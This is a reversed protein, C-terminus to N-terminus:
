GGSAAVDEAFTIVPIGTQKALSRIRQHILESQTPSGGAYCFYLPFVSQACMLVWHKCAHMKMISGRAKLHGFILLARAILRTPVEVGLCCRPLHHCCRCCLAQLHAHGASLRAQAVERGAACIVCTLPCRWTFRAQFGPMDVM